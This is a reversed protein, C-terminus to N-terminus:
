IKADAEQRVKGAASSAIKDISAGGLIELVPMDIGLVKAYWM